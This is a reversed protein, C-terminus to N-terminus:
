QGRTVRIASKVAEPWQLSRSGTATRGPTRATGADPPSPCARALFIAGFNSIRIKWYIRNRARSRRASVPRFRLLLRRFDGSVAPFRRFGGSAAPLPRFGGSAAPLRRFGGSAAPLRRFGGSAAPLRRFSGSAASGGSATL